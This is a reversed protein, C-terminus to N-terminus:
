IRFKDIERKLENTVELLKKSIMELNDAIIDTNESEKTLGESTDMLLRVNTNIKETEKTAKKSYAITHDLKSMTENIQAVLEGTTATIEQSTNATNEMEYKIQMVGQVIVNVASDIEGLSKQTREALKRVEDAVVAFGRGHEGARAAEIAANLALLNTQDAIDKIITIVEKIQNTQDALSTIKQALEVENNSNSEIKNTVNDLIETGNALTKQTNSIDVATTVVSEEAIALDHEINNTYEKTKVILEKQNELSATVNKSNASIDSVVKYTKNMADTLNQMIKQVKEIFININEAVEYFEDGEDVVVRKTLDGDGIALDKVANQLTKLKSIILKNVLMITIVMAIAIVILSIIIITFMISTNAALAEDKDIEAIIAWHKNYVKLPAYASLVPVGRYDNIIWKGSKGSLAERVSKTDVTFVGITTHLKQVLPDDIDKVFRSDNRMKKDDGVLYVEGSEGLGAKEYEGNFSMINNIKDIPLQFILVGIRKNNKFIPTAIFSAPLNYSPEYPRFDDFSIETKNLNLAKKYVKALGTYKYPGTLLNTAYDKEKFDTYVVNGKNDVLFIDYLKFNTLLINFALHYIKHYKSYTSNDNSALLNNKEGIPNPNKIIYLYQAILGAKTKPLYFETEKRPPVGPIDYNVKNLYNTNYHKILEQKIKNIDVDVEKPLKYFSSSFKEMAEVTGEAVSTSVILSKLDEFLNEIHQKKSEKVADLQNLYANTLADSIKPISIVSVVLGVLMTSIVVLLVIRAKITKLNM